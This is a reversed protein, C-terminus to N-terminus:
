GNKSTFEIEQKLMKIESELKLKDQMAHLKALSLESKLVSLEKEQQVVRAVGAKCVTELGGCYSQIRWIGQLLLTLEQKRKDDIKNNNIWGVFADQILLLDDEKQQELLNQSTDAYEFNKRQQKVFQVQLKVQSKERLGEALRDDKEM